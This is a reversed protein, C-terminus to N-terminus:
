DNAVQDLQLLLDAFSEPLPERVVSEYLQRLGTSWQVGPAALGDACCPCGAGECICVAIAAQGHEPIPVRERM